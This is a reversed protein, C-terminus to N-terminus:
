IMDPSLREDNPNVLKRVASIAGTAGRCRDGLCTETLVLGLADKIAAVALKERIAALAVPSM